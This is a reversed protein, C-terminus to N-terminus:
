RPHSMVLLEASTVARESVIVPHALGDNDAASRVAQSGGEHQGSGAQVDTHEFRTLREAAPSAAAVQGPLTQYM